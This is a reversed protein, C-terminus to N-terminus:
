AEYSFCFCCCIKGQLLLFLVINTYSMRGEGVVKRKYLLKCCQRIIILSPHIPKGSIRCIYMGEDETVNRWDRGEARFEMANRYANKYIEKRDSWIRTRIRSSYESRMPIPVVSVAEDFAICKKSSSKKSKNDKNKLAKITPMFEHLSPRSSSRRIGCDSNSIEMSTSSGYSKQIKLSGTDVIGLKYLLNSRLKHGDKSRNPMKRFSGSRRENKIPSVDSFFTTPLTISSSVNM